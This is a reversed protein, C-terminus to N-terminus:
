KEIYLVKNHLTAGHIVQIPRESIDAAYALLQRTAGFKATVTWGSQSRGANERDRGGCRLCQAESGGFCM